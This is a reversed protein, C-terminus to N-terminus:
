NKVIITLTSSVNDADYFQYTGSKRFVYGYGGKAPIQGSNFDATQNAAAKSQVVHISRGPEGEVNVARNEFFVETDPKVTLTAPIFSQGDLQVTAEYKHEESDITVNKTSSHHQWIALGGGILLLGVVVAAVVLLRQKTIGTSSPEPSSTTVTPTENTIPPQQPEM